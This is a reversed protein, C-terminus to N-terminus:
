PDNFQNAGLAHGTHLPVREVVGGEHPAGFADGLASALISGVWRDENVPM